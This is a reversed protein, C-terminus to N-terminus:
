SDLDKKDFIIGKCYKEGNDFIDFTLHPINTDYTWTFESKCWLANIYKGNKEFIKGGNFCGIEDNIAGRFEANDDSYGFVIVLGLEKAKQTEEKSIENLYERGNLQKAFDSKNKLIM